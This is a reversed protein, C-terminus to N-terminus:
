KSAKTAASDPEPPLPTLEIVTRNEPVFVRSAVRRCDEATVARYRSVVSYMTQYSGYIAEFFGLQEGAGHNTELGKVLDAELSNRAKQLERETPGERSLRDLVQDLAEEGEAACNGPKMELYIEFL